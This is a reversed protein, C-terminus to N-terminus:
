GVALNEDFTSGNEERYTTLGDLYVQVGFNQGGGIKSLYIGAGQASNPGQNVTATGPGVTGPVLFAFSEIARFQGLGGLALPLEQIQKETVVGGIDSSDTEIRQVNADVTVSQATEGLKLQLPLASTTLTM